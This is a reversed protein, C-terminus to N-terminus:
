RRRGPRRCEAEHHEPDAGDAGHEESTIAGNPTYVETRSDDHRVERLQQEAQRERRRIASLADILFSIRRPRTKRSPIIGINRNEPANRGSRWGSGRMSDSALTVGRHCPTSRVRHEDHAVHSQDNGDDM